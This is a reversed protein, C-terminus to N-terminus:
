KLTQAFALAEAAVRRRADPSDMLVDVTHTPLSPAPDDAVVGDIVDAYAQEVAATGTALGAIRCFAETPGKV